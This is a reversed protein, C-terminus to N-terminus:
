NVIRGEEQAKLIAEKNKEWFARDSVQAVTFTKGGASSSTTTDVSDFGEEKRLRNFKDEIAQEMRKELASKDEKIIKSISKNLRVTAAISDEADEAYDLRKDNPDIGFEEPITAMRDFFDQRAQEAQDRLEREQLAQAQTAMTAARLQASLQPNTAAIQNFAGIQSEAQEARRKFINVEKRVAKVERDKVGQFHRKAEEIKETMMEAIMEKTLPQDVKPAEGEPEGTTVEVPENPQVNEDM